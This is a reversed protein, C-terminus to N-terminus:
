KTNNLKIPNSQIQKEYHPVKLRDNKNQLAPASTRRAQTVESEPSAWKSDVGEGEAAPDSGGEKRAAWDAARSVPAAGCDVAVPVRLPFLLSSFCAILYFPSRVSM